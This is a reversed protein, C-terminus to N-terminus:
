WFIIRGLKIGLTLGIGGIVSSFFVIKAIKLYGIEFTHKYNKKLLEISEEYKEPEFKNTKIVKDATTENNWKPAPGVPIDNKPNDDTKFNLVKDLKHKLDESIHLKGM